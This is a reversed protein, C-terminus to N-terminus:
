RSSGCPRAGAQRKGALWDAGRGGGRPGSVEEVTAGLSELHRAAARVAADIAPAVGEGLTQSVLGIRKGALPRSGGAALAPALGAAYDVAPRGSSTADHSDGGAYPVGGGGSISSPLPHCCPMGPPDGSGYFDYVAAVLM